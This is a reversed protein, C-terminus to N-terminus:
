IIYADLCEFIHGIYENYDCKFISDEKFAKIVLEELYAKAEFAIMSAAADEDISSKNDIRQEAAAFIVTDCMQYLWDEYKAFGTSGKGFRRDFAKEMHTTIWESSKSFKSYSEFTLLINGYLLQLAVEKISTDIDEYKDIEEKPFLTPEEKIKNSHSVPSIVAPKNTFFTNDYERLSNFSTTKKASKLENYRNSIFKTISAYPSNVVINLDIYQIRERFGTKINETSSVEKGNYTTYKVHRVGEIEEVIKRTVRAVYTGENNVVLSLFHITQEGEEVLTSADTGSFFAKMNNHSHILGTKCDLLDNEMMYSCIEPTEKYNTFGATGIDMVFFDRVTFEINKEEFSGSITYFLTGSWETTPNLSCWQRIRFEVEDPIVLSYSDTSGILQLKQVPLKSSNIEM